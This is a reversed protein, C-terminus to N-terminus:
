YEDRLAGVMWQGIGKGRHARDVYVDCLWGFTARDTVMRCFAVQVGEPTDVGYADSGAISAEITARPRGIAWYADTSLWTSVKDVDLRTKDDSLEYAGDTRILHM